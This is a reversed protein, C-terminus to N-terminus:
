VNLRARQSYQQQHVLGPSGGKPLNWMSFYWMSFPMGAMRAKRVTGCSDGTVHTLVDLVPRDLGVHWQSYVCPPTWSNGRPSFFSGLHAWGFNGIWLIM